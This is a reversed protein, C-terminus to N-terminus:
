PRFKSLKEFLERKNLVSIFISAEPGENEVILDGMNRATM